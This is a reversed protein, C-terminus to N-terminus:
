STGGIKLPSPRTRGMVCALPWALPSSLPPPPVEPISTSLLSKISFIPQCLYNSLNVYIVDMCQQPQKSELFFVACSSIVFLKSVKMLLPLTSLSLASRNRARIFNAWICHLDCILLYRLECTIKSTEWGHAHTGAHVCAELPNQLMSAPLSWM